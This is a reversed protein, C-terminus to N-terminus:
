PRGGYGALGALGLRWDRERTEETIVKCPEATLLLLQCTITNATRNSLEVNVLGPDLVLRPQTLLIPAARATFNSHNGGGNAFDQFLPVGSCSDVAQILIDGATTPTSGGGPATASISAFEYGYLYSGGAMAIQYYLTDYPQIPQDIDDPVVFWRARLNAARRLIDMQALANPFYRNPLYLLQTNYSFGDVVQPILILDGQPKPTTPRNGRVTLPAVGLM